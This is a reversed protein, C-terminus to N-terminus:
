FYNHFLKLLKSFSSFKFETVSSKRYCLRLSSLALNKISLIGFFAKLIFLAQSVRVNFNAPSSNHFEYIIEKSTLYIPSSIPNLLM